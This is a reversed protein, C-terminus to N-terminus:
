RVKGIIDASSNQGRDSRPERGIAGEDDGALLMAILWSIRRLAEGFQRGDDAAAERGGLTAAGGANWFRGDPIPEIGFFSAALGFLKSLTRRISESDDMVSM